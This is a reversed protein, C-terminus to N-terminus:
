RFTTMSLTNYLQEINEIHKQRTSSKSLPSTKKSIHRISKEVTEYVKTTNKIDETLCAVLFLLIKYIQEQSCYVNIPNIYTERLAFLADINTMFLLKIYYYEILSTNTHQTKKNFILMHGSRVSPAKSTTITKIANDLSSSFTFTDVNSFDVLLTNYKTINVTKLVSYLYEVSFRDIFMKMISSIPHIKGTRELSYFITYILSTWFETYAEEILLTGDNYDDHINFCSRISAITTKIKTSQIACMAGLDLSLAHILEHLLVKFCEEERYIIIRKTTGIHTTFGSNINSSDLSTEYDMNFTKKQTTPLLYLKINIKKADDPRRTTEVYEMLFPVITKLFVCVDNINIKNLLYGHLCKIDFHVYKITLQARDCYVDNMSISKYIDTKIADNMFMSSVDDETISVDKLSKVSTTHYSNCVSITNRKAYCEIATKVMTKFHTTKVVKKLVEKYPELITSNSMRIFQRTHKYYESDNFITMM